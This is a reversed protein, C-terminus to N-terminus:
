WSSKASRATLGAWSLARQRFSVCLRFRQFDGTTRVIVGYRGEGRPWLLAVLVGVLWFRRKM